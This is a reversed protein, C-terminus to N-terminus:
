MGEGLLFYAGGDLYGTEPDSGGFLLDNRGDHNADGIALASGIGARETRGHFSADSAEWVDQTGRLQFPNHYIYIAGVSGAGDAGDCAPDAVVLDAIEDGDLDSGHLGLAGGGREPEGTLTALVESSADIVGMLDGPLIYVAGHAGYSDAYPLGGGQVAISVTGGDDALTAVSGAFAGDGPLSLITEADDVTYDGALPGHFVQLTGEGGNHDNTGILLDDFGDGDLDTIPAEQNGVLDSPETGLITALADPTSPNALDVIYIKGAWSAITSHGEAGVLLSAVGGTLGDARQLGAGFYEESADGVLWTDAPTVERTGSMGPEFLMVQGSSAFGSVPGLAGLLLEDAGDGDIDTSLVGHDLGLGIGEPGYLHAGAGSLEQYGVPTGYWLHVSGGLPQGYMEGYGGVIIDSRGDATVDAIYVGTGLREETGLPGAIYGGDVGSVGHPELVVDGAYGCGGPSGDCDDDLGNNCVEQADPHVALDTDDCDEPQDAYGEPNACATTTVDMVGYGDGDQDRYWTTADVSAPDDLIRDCNDDIGNCREVADPSVAAVADDCDDCTTVASATLTCANTRTAADGHGDGDADDCWILEGGDEDVDEDCDNDLGDCVEHSEPFIRPDADNCDGEALTSGDADEDTLERLRQQAPSTDFIICGSILLLM